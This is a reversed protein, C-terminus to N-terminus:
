PQPPLFNIGIQAFMGAVKEPTAEGKNMLVEVQPFIKEMGGPMVVALGRSPTKGVNRFSHPVKKPLYIVMGPTARIIEQGCVVEAEGEIVYFIEDEREHVHLPVGGGPPSIQELVCVAGTTDESQVRCAVQDAFIRMWRLEKSDSAIGKLISPNM